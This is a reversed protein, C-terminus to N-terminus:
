GKKRDVANERDQVKKRFESDRREMTEEEVKV